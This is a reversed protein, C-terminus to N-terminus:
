SPEEEERGRRAIDIENNEQGEVSYLYLVPTSYEIGFM